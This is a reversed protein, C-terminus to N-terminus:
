TLCKYKLRHIFFWLDSMPKILFAAHKLIIYLSQKYFKHYRFRQEIELSKKSVILFESIKFELLPVLIPLLKQNCLFMQKTNLTPKYNLPWILGLLSKYKLCNFFWWLNTSFATFLTCYKITKYCRCTTKYIKTRFVKKLILSMYKLRNMFFALDRKPKM